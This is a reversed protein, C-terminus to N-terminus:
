ESDISWDPMGYVLAFRQVGIVGDDVIRKNRHCGTKPDRLIRDAARGRELGGLVPRSRAARSFLIKGPARLGSRGLPVQASRNWLRKSRRRRGEESIM